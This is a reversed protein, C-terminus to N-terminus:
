EFHAVIRLFFSAISAFLPAIKVRIAFSNVTAALIPPESGSDLGLSRNAIKFAFDEFIGLSLM